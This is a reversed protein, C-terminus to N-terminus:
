CMKACSRRRHRMRCLLRQVLGSRPVQRGGIQLDYGDTRGHKQSRRRTSRHSLMSHSSAACEMECLLKGHCWQPLAHGFVHLHPVECQVRLSGVQLLSGQECAMEVLRRFLQPRLIDTGILDVQGVFSLQRGTRDENSNGGQAEEVLNGEFLVPGEFLDDWSGLLWLPEGNNKAWLLNKMKELANAAGLMARDQGGAVGGPQADGLGDMQLGGIDVALAHHDSDLLPLSLLISVHHERGPQQLRQAMVPPCHSRLAPQEFPINRPLREGGAGDFEGTLLSPAEGANALRDARMRHAVRKGDMQQFRSGVDARNLQQEAVAAQCGRGAVEADGGALYAGSGARRVQRRMREASVGM